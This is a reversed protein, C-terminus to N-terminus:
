NHKWSNGHDHDRAKMWRNHKHEPKKWHRDRDRDEDDDWDHHRHHKHHKYWGLHRGNDHHWHRPPPPPEHHHRGISINVGGNISVNSQARSIAPTALLGGIAGLLTATFLTRKMDEEEDIRESALASKKVQYVSARSPVGSPCKSIENLPAPRISSKIALCGGLSHRGLAPRCAPQDHM